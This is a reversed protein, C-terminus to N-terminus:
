GHIPLALNNDLLNFIDFHWSKLIEYIELVDKFRLVDTCNKTFYLDSLSTIADYFSLRNEDSINYKECLEDLPILAKGNHNIEKTLQSLPRLHPTCFEFVFGLNQSTLKKERVEDRVGNRLQIVYSLKYTTHLGYPAYAAIHKLELKM